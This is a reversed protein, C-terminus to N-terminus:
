RESLMPGDGERPSSTGRRRAVFAGIRSGVFLIAAALVLVPVVLVTVLWSLVHLAGLLVEVESGPWGGSLVTVADRGGLMSLVTWPAALLGAALVLWRARV